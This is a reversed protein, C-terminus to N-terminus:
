SFLPILKSMYELQQEQVSLPSLGQYFFNWSLGSLNAGTGYVTHLDEMQKKVDDLTGCLQYGTEIMRKTAAAKSDFRVPRDKPDSPTRFAEYMGFGGFYDDWVHGTTAVALDFAEERTKGITIARVAGVNEGRGFKYGSETSIRQYDDVLKIMDNKDPPFIWPMFGRRAAEQMSKPSLNMPVWIPPHNRNYCAPVIGIKRIVGQADIEGDVGHARTWEVAAWGEIGKDYPFPVQYHKGNHDFVDNNWAKFIVELYEDFVERNFEDSLSQDSTAASIANKQGLIQVWRKQYGRAVCIGAIRGKSLQDLLAWDEAVRLPDRTTIVTSMPAFHLRETRAAFDAFMPVQNPCAEGGETHFHHETMAFSHVGTQDCLKVIHRLEDLMMQYRDTRKGIPRLRKREELTGPVEPMAFVNIFM